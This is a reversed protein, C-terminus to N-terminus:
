NLRGCWVTLQLWHALTSVYFPGMLRDSPSDGWFLLLGTQSWALGGHLIELRDTIGWSLFEYGYMIFLFPVTFKTDRGISRRTPYFCFVSLCKYLEM